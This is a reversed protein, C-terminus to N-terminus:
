MAPRGKSALTSKIVTIAVLIGNKPRPHFRCCGRYLFTSGIRKVLLQPCSISTHNLLVWARGEVTHLAYHSAGPSRRRRQDGVQRDVDPYCTQVMMVILVVVGLLRCRIDLALEGPRCRCVVAIVFLVTAQDAAGQMKSLRRRAGEINLVDHTYDAFGAGRDGENSRVREWCRDM